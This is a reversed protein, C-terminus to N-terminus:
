GEEAGMTLLLEIYPDAQAEYRGWAELARGLFTADESGIGMLSNLGMGQTTVATGILYQFLLWPSAGAEIGRSHMFLTSIPGLEKFPPHELMWELPDTEFVWFWEDGNLTERVFLIQNHIFADYEGHRYLGDFNDDTTIAQWAYHWDDDLEDLIQRLTDTHIVPTDLKRAIQEFKDHDYIM